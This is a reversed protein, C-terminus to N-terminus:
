PQKDAFCNANREWPFTVMREHCGYYEIPTGEPRMDRGEPAHMCRECAARAAEAFNEAASPEVDHWSRTALSEEPKRPVSRQMRRLEARSPFLASAASLLPQLLWNLLLPLSPVASHWRLLPPAVSPTRKPMAQKPRCASGSSKRAKHNRSQCILSNASVYLPVGVRQTQRAKQPAVVRTQACAM